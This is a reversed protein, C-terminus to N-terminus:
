ESIVKVETAFGMVVQTWTNDGEDTWVGQTMVGAAVEMAEEESECVNEATQLGDILLVVKPPSGTTSDSWAM